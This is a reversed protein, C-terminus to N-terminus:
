SIDKILITLLHKKYITIIIKYIHIEKIDQGSTTNYGASRTM